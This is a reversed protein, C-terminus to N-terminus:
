PPPPRVRPLLAPSRTRWGGRKRVAAFAEQAPNERRAGHGAVGPVVRDLLNEAVTARDVDAGDPGVVALPQEIVELAQSRARHVVPEEAGLPSEGVRLEVLERPEVEDLFDGQHGGQELVSLLPDDPDAAVGHQGALRGGRLHREGNGVLVLAAADARQQEVMEDADSAGAPHALELGVDEALVVPHELDEGGAAEHDGAGGLGAHHMEGKGGLLRLTGALRGVRALPDRRGLAHARQEVRARHGHDSRRPPRARDAGGQDRVQLPGPESSRDVRDVRARALDLPQPGVRADASGALAHIQGDDGDRRGRHLLHHAVAGRRAHAVHDHDGGPERFGGLLPTRGLLPEGPEHAARAHPHDPGVAHADEVGVGGDGQVRGERRVPRRDPVDAHERLAAREPEGDEVVDALQVDPHRGEDRDAVLGVDRAVIEQAVPGVVRARADHHEVQLAEPVRALESTDGRLDRASLRDDGDLRPARRGAAARGRAVRSREGAEVDRDVGQECLGTDDPRVGQLLEEVDRREERRLGDRRAPADAHDRIGAARPDQQGVCALSATQLEGGQRGVRERRQAGEKGRVRPQRVRDVQGGGARGLLVRVRDLGDAGIARDVREDDDVDRREHGVGVLDRAGDGATGAGHRRVLGDERHEDRGLARRRQETLPRPALQGRVAVRLVGGHREGRRLRVSAPPPARAPRREREAAQALARDARHDVADEGARLSRAPERRSVEARHQAGRADDEGVGLLDSRVLRNRGGLPQSEREHRLRDRGAEHVLAVDPAHDEPEIRGGGHRAGHRREALAHLLDACREVADEELALHRAADLRQDADGGIGGEAREQHAAQAPDQDLQQAVHREM